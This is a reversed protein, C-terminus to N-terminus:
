VAKAMKIWGPVLSYLVHDKKRPKNTVIRIYKQDNRSRAYEEVKEAQEYTECPVVCTNISDKAHGWGSMFSDNSLVYYPADPIFYYKGETSNFYYSM